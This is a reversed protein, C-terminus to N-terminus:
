ARDGMRLLGRIGDMAVRAEADRQEETRIDLLKREAADRDAVEIRKHEWSVDSEGLCLKRFEPATPPWDLGQNVCERMGHRIQSEDLGALTAEWVRDPDVTDGFSGTWRHGYMSGM